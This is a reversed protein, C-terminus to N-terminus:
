ARRSLGTDPRFPTCKVPGNTVTIIGFNEAVALGIGAAVIVFAIMGADM